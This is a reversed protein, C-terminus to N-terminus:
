VLMELYCVFVRGLGRIGVSFMVILYRVRLRSLLPPPQQVQVPLLMVFLELANICFLSFYLCGLPILTRIQCGEALEPGDEEIGPEM